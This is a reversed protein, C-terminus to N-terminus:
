VQCYVVKIAKDTQHYGPRDGLFSQATVVMDSIGLTQFLKWGKEEQPRLFGGIQYCRLLEQGEATAGYCYPEVVRIGGDYDFYIITKSKIAEILKFNM